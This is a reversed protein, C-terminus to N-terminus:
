ASAALARLVTCLGVEDVAGCVCVRAGHIAIEISGVPMPRKPPRPADPAVQAAQAPEVIAVPLAVPRTADVADPM